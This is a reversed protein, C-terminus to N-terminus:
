KMKFLTKPHNVFLLVFVFLFIFLFVFSFIFSLNEKLKSQQLLSLIELEKPLSVSAFYSVFNDNKKNIGIFNGNDDFYFLNFKSKKKTLDFVSDCLFINKDKYSVVSKFMHPYYSDNDNNILFFIEEGLKLNKTPRGHVVDYDFESEFTILILDNNLLLNRIEGKEKKYKGNICTIIEVGDYFINKVSKLYSIWFDDKHIDTSLVFYLFKNKSLEKKQFIIGNGNIEKNHEIVVLSNKIKQLNMLKNNDNNSFSSYNLELSLFPEYPYFQQIEDISYEKTESLDDPGKKRFIIKQNKEDYSITIIEKTPDFFFIQKQGYIGLILDIKLQIDQSDQLIDSSISKNPMEKLCEVLDKFLVTKEKLLNKNKVDTLFHDKKKNSTHIVNSISSEFDDDHLKIIEDFKQKIHEIYICQSIQDMLSDPSLVISKNMGIIQGQENFVPGGSNGRDIQIDFAVEKANCYVVNGKKLLNFGISKYHNFNHPVNMMDQDNSNFSLKEKPVDSVQSGMSYVIQGPYINIKEKPFVKDLIDKTNQFNSQNSDEFVLVAIDDYVDKNYLYKRDIKLHKPFQINDHCLQIKPWTLKHYDSIVHRNTLVYYKYTNNKMPKVKYIFGSGLSYSHQNDWLAILVTIQHLNKIIKNKSSEPITDNHIYTESINQRCQQLNLFEFLSELLNNPKSKFKKHLGLFLGKNDFFIKHKIGTDTTIWFYYDNTIKDDDFWACQSLYFISNSTIIHNIEMSEDQVPGSIGIFEGADNFFIKNNKGKVSVFLYDDSDLNYDKSIIGEQFPNIDNDIDLSFAYVTDGKTFIHPKIDFTPKETSPGFINKVQDQLKKIIKEKQKLDQINESSLIQNQEYQNFIIKDKNLKFLFCYYFFLCLIFLLFFVVFHKKQKQCLICIKKKAFIM